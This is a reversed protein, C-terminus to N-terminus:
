KILGKQYEKSSTLVGELFMRYFPELSKDKLMSVNKEILSAERTSDFISLNNEKKYEAVDKVASMREQFLELMQADLQNIRERAAELKNM